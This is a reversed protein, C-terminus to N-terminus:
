LYEISGNLAANSVLDASSTNGLPGSMELDEAEQRMLDIYNKTTAKEPAALALEKTEEFYSPFESAYCVRSVPSNSMSRDAPQQRHCPYRMTHNQRNYKLMSTEPDQEEIGLIDYLTPIPSKSQQAASQTTGNAFVSSAFASKASATNPTWEKNGFTKPQSATSSPTWEKNGFTKPQTNTSALIWEKNGFAKPQTATSAPTWEKNGFTKAQNNASAPTWEKNGFTKPQNNTSSPTWEKNGFTNPLTATSDVTWEMNKSGPNLLSHAPPRRAGPVFAKAGANLATQPKSHKFICNPRTCTGGNEENRCPVESPPLVAKKMEAHRKGCDEQSCGGYQAFEDCIEQTNRAGESHRFPCNDGNRCTGTLFFHCDVTSKAM